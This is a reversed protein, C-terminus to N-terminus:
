RYLRPVRASLGCTVEYNITGWRSAIEEASIREQGSQGLVVAEEGVGINAAPDLRVMIQDMCVRGVVPYRSGGLLIQNGEVRRYGDGYGVPVVGIMEQEQTTYIHGYSVGVGAELVQIQSVRSLWRLAPQFQSPLQVQPSPDMGYIAIGCRVMQHRTNPRTLAAASNACHILSPRIGAASIDALWAEFIEEQRQTTTQDPEDARAFHTFAGELDINPEGALRRLVQFAEEPLMGLRSMGTDVKIHVRAPRGAAAAAALVPEVQDARHLTLSIQARVAEAMREDPTYGLIQIATGIGERRLELAEDIRAVGLFSAGAKVSIRAVQIIGHGYGNAKVVAMVRVGTLRILQRVNNGIAKGDIELWNSHGNHVDM